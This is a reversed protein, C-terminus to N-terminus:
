QNADDGFWGRERCGYRSTYDMMSIFRPTWARSLLFLIQMKQALVGTSLCLVHVKCRARQSQRLTPLFFMCEDDPHATVLLINQHGNNQTKLIDSLSHMTEVVHDDFRTNYLYSHFLTPREFAGFEPGSLSSTRNENNKNAYVM